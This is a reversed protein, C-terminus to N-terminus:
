VGSRLEKTTSQAVILLLFRGDPASPRLRFLRQSLFLTVPPMFVRQLLQRFM